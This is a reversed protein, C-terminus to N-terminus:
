AAPPIECPPQLCPPHTLPTLPLDGGIIRVVFAEVDPESGQRLGHCYGAFKNKKGSLAVVGPTQETCVPEAGEAGDPRCADRPGQSAFLRAFAARQQADVWVFSVKIRKSTQGKAIREAVRQLVQLEVPAKVERRRGRGVTQERSDKIFGIICLGKNERCATLAEESGLATVLEKGKPPEDKKKEEKKTNSRVAIAIARELADQHLAGEFERLATPEGRTSVLVAPARKV